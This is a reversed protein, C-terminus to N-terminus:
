PSLELISALGIRLGEFDALRALALKVGPLFCRRDITRHEIRLTEGEGGFIVTQEALVGPIRLAHIRVGDVGGGRSGALKEGRPGSEVEGKGTILKATALATGSPADLKGPHHAEVIEAHKMYGAAQRAFAMMLNAGLSFNPVILCSTGTREAAAKLREVTEGAYGTAGVLYRKGALLVQEGHEDVAAGTSFDVIHTAPSELLAPLGIAIGGVGAIEGGAPDFVAAVRFAEDASLGEAVMRGMRGAAGIVGVLIPEAM